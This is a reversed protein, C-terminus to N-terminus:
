TSKQLSLSAIAKARSFVSKAVRLAIIASITYSEFVFGLDNSRPKTIGLKIIENHFDTGRDTIIFVCVTRLVQIQRPSKM